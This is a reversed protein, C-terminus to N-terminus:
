MADMDEPKGSINVTAWISVVGRVTFMSCRVLIGSRYNDDVVLAMM